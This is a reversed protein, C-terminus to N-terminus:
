RGPSGADNTLEAQPHRTEIDAAIRGPNARTDASSGRERPLDVNVKRPNPAERRGEAAPGRRTADSRAPLSPPHRRGVPRGIEVELLGVPQEVHIRLCESGGGVGHDIQHGVVEGRDLTERDKRRDLGARDRRQERRGSGFRGLRDPGDEVVIAPENFRVRGVPLVGAEQRVEPSGRGPGPDEALHQGSRDALVRHEPPRRRDGRLELSDDDAPQALGDPQRFREIPEDRIRGRRGREDSQGAGALCGPAIDRGHACVCRLLRVRRDLLGAHREAQPAPRQDPDRRVIPELHLDVVKALGDRTISLGAEPRDRNDRRDARCRRGRDIRDGLGGSDGLGLAEPEM